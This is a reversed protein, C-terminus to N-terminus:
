YNNLRRVFAPSYSSIMFVWEKNDVNAPKFDCSFMLCNFEDNTLNINADKRLCEKIDFTSHKRNYSAIKILNDSMWAKAKVVNEHGIENEVKALKEKVADEYNMAGLLNYGYYHRVFPKYWRARDKLIAPSVKSIYFHCNLEEIDNVKFGCILMADKFQNNTMYTNDIHQIIHKLGYSTKDMYPTKSKIFDRKIWNLIRDQVDKPMDSILAKDVSNCNYTIPHGNVLKCYSKNFM